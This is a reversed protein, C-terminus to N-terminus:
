EEMIVLGNGEKLAAIKKEPIMGAAQSFQCLGIVVLMMLCLIKIKTMKDKIKREM